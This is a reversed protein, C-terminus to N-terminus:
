VTPRILLDAPIDLGLHLTWFMALTLKRKGSLVQYVRNRRGIMSGLDEPKLGQQEMRFKIADLPHPPDIAHHKTEDADTLALM